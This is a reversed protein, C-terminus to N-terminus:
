AKKVFLGDYQLIRLENAYEPWFDWLEFGYKSLFTIINKYTMQKKYLPEISLECFVVSIDRLCNKSGNLIEAEYGQADIKLLM